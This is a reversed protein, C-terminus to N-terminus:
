SNEGACPMIGPHILNASPSMSGDNCTVPISQPRQQVRIEMPRVGAAAGQAASAFTIAISLCAASAGASGTDM